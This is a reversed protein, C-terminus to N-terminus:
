RRGVEPERFDTGYVWGDADTHLNVMAKWACHDCQLFGTLSRAGSTCDLNSWAGCDTPLLHGPYSAGFGRLPQWRQNEFVDDYAHESCGM